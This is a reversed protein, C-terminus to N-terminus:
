AEILVKCSAAHIKMALQPRQALWAKPVLPETIRLNAYEGMEMTQLVKEM